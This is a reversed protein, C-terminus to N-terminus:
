LRDGINWGFVKRVKKAKWKGWWLDTHIEQKVGLQMHLGLARYSNKERINKSLSKIEVHSKINASPKIQGSGEPDRFGYFPNRTSSIWFQPSAGKDRWWGSTCDLGLYPLIRHPIDAGHLYMCCFDHALVNM